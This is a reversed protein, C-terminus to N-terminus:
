PKAAQKARDAIQKVAADVSLQGKAVQNISSAAASSFEPYWGPTGQKFLPETTKAQALLADGAFLKGEDNLKKLVSLRPPLNGLSNYIEIENAPDAIWNIFKVAAEQNDALTPVGVAEPLGFTRSKGTTSPMLAAAVEAAVKSKTSDSYVALNGAWGAVDFTIAGSKFLEQVEVDKLGTAAPDILGDKLATAVFELAKYGGSNKDTFLPNFDADFLDGGFAMTLLYWATSTGETASLPLGIPYQAIAKAKIAKAADLLEQPTKPAAAVGAKQLHAKNYILIRFDNNYPLGLLKGNFRFIEATPIDAVTAAPIKDDLPKFWGASGFQGVWSWDVEAAQAPSTNAVMSTVIKTRIDDWGLTQIEVAVGIEKQCRDTMEKTLTGWPPLLVVLPASSGATAARVLGPAAVAVGAAALTQLFTRRKM